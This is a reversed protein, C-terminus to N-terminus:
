LSTCKSRDGNSDKFFEFPSVSNDATARKFKAKGRPPIRTVRVPRGRADEIIREENKM